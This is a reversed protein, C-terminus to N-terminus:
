IRRVGPTNLQKQQPSEQVNDEVEKAAAVAAALVGTPLKKTDNTKDIVRDPNAEVMQAVTMPKSEDQKQKVPEPEKIPEPAPEKTPIPPPPTNPIVPQIPVSSTEVTKPPEWDKWDEDASIGTGEPIKDDSPVMTNLENYERMIQERSKTINGAPDIEDGRANVNMNGIAPATENALLLAGFDVTKGSSTRYTKGPKRAM